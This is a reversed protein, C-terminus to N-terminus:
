PVLSAFYAKMKRTMIEAVVFGGVTGGIGAGIATGLYPVHIFEAGLGGGLGSLLGCICFGLITAPQRIAFQKAREYLLNHELDPYRSLEPWKQARTSM